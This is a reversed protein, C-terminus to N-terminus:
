DGEAAKPVIAIQEMAGGETGASSVPLRFLSAGEPLRRSARVGPVESLVKILPMPKDLSIVITTGREWSGVSQVIKVEPISQLQNYLHSVMTADVPPTVILAVDGVYLTGLDQQELLREADQRRREEELAQVDQVVGEDEKVEEPPAEEVMGDPEAAEASPRQEQPAELAEEVVGDLEAAEASPRQEQPAELAEEVVGDPEVAEASPRQEQPVEVTEEPFQEETSASRRRLSWGRRRRKKQPPPEQPPAEAIAEPAEGVTADPEVVQAWPREEQSAEAVGEAPQEPTAELGPSRAEEPQYWEQPTEVEEAPAEPSSTVVADAPPPTAGERDPEAGAVEGEPPSASIGFPKTFAETLFQAAELAKGESAQSQQLERVTTQWDGEIQQATEQLTQLSATLQAYARQSQEKVALQAQEGVQALFQLAQRRAGAVIIETTRRAEALIDEVEKATQEEARQRAAAITEQATRRAESVIRDAEMRAERTAKAQVDEVMTDLTSLMRAAYSGLSLADDPQEALANYRSRLEEVFAVVQGESLGGGVLEFERGWM